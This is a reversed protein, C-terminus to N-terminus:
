ARSSKPIKALALDIKALLAMSNLQEAIPRARSLCEEAERYRKKLLYLFGLNAEIRARWHSNGSFMPNERAVLMMATAKKWGTFATTALFRLNRLILRLPPRQTPALLELYVQALYSRAIDRGVVFGLKIDTEIIAELFRVGKEFDGRLVMTVGLPMDSASTIYTWGVGICRTRTAWLLDAGADISGTFVLAM